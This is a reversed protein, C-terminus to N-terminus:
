KQVVFPSLTLRGVLSQDRNYGIDSVVGSLTTTDTAGLNLNTAEARLEGDLWLRVQGNNKGPANLVIEQEITVWRNTPWKVTKVGIWHGATTPTRLEIGAVGDKQWGIRTVFGSKPQMDNLQTVDEAGYLGPLSGPGSFSFDNPLYVRYSLCGGRAGALGQPQWVFGIGNTWTKETEVDEESTKPTMAVQLYFSSKDTAQVVRANDLLGWERQPLRAQLELSSLPEGKTSQLSFQQGDAYRTSCRPVIESTFFSNVVYGGVVLLVGLGAANFLIPKLEIQKM